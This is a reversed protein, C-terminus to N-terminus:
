NGTEAACSHIAHSRRRPIRGGIKRLTAHSRPLSAFPSRPLAILNSMTKCLRPRSLAYFSASTHCHYPERRPTPSRWWKWSQILHPASEELGRFIDYKGAACPCLPTNHFIDWWPQTLETSTLPPTERLRSSAAKMIRHWLACDERAGRARSQPRPRQGHYILFQIESPYLCGLVVGGRRRVDNFPSGNLVDALTEPNKVGGGLKYANPSIGPGLDVCGTKSCVCKPRCGGGM